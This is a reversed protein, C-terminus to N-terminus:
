KKKRYKRMYERHYITKDDAPKKGHNNRIIELEEHTYNGHPNDKKKGRFIESMKLKNENSRKFGTGSGGYANLKCNLLIDKDISDFYEQERKKCLDADKELIDIIQFLFDNEGYKNWANQLKPSSHRNKQLERKHRKFRQSFGRWTSGIYKKGTTKCIIQYIGYM